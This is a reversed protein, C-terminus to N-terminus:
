LSSVKQDLLNRVVCQIVIDQGIEVTKNSMPEIVITENTSRLDEEMEGSDEYMESSNEESIKESSELSNGEFIEEYIEGDDIHLFETSDSDRFHVNGGVVAVM